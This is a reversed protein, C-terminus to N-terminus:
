YVKFLEKTNDNQAVEEKTLILYSRIKILTEGSGSYINM